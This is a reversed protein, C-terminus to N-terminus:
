ILFDVFDNESTMIKEFDDYFVHGKVTFYKKVMDEIQRPKFDKAFM